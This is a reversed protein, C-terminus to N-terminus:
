MNRQLGQAWCPHLGLAGVNMPKASNCSRGLDGRRQFHGIHRACDRGRGGGQSTVLGVSLHRVLVRIKSSLWCM